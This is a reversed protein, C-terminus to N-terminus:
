KNLLSFLNVSFLAIKKDFRDSATFNCRVCLKLGHIKSMHLTLIYRTRCLADCQSCPYSGNNAVVMKSSRNVRKISKKNRDANIAQNPVESLTDTNEIVEMVSVDDKVTDSRKDVFEDFESRFDDVPEIKIFEIGFLLSEQKRSEAPVQEDETMGLYENKPSNETKPVTLMERWFADSKQFMDLANVTQSLLQSCKNCCYEPCDKSMFLQQNLLDDVNLIMHKNLM